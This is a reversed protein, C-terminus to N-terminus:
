SAVSAAESYLRYLQVVFYMLAFATFVIMVQTLRWPRSNVWGIIFGAIPTLLFALIGLLPSTENRLAAVVVIAWCSLVGVLCVWEILVPGALYALLIM